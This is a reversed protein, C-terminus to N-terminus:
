ECVDVMVVFVVGLWQCSVVVCDFKGVVLLKCMVIEDCVCCGFVYDFLEIGYLQGCVILVFEFVFVDYLYVCDYRIYNVYLVEIVVGVQFGIVSDFVVFGVVMKVDVM